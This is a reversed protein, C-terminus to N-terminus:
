FGRRGAIEDQLMPPPADEEAGSEAACAEEAEAARDRALSQGTTIDIFRATKGRARSWRLAVYEPSYAAFPCLGSAPTGDTRYGLIAVPPRTEPDVIADVLGDADEPGEILVLEPQVQDLLRELVFGTRPSHHRVPFLHVGNYLSM